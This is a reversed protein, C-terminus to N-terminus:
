SASRKLVPPLRQMDPHIRGTKGHWLRTLAKETTCYGISVWRAGARDKKGRQLIWQIGDMCLIVRYDGQRILEGLYSDSTERHALSTNM